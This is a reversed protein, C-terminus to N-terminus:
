KVHKWTTGQKIHRITSEGVGYIRAVSAITEKKLLIKIMRVQDPNLVSRPSVKYGRKIVVRPPFYARGKKWMDMNNEKHTGVFLHAPNVCSRNDCSHCVCLDDPVDVGSIKLATRHAYENKTIANRCRGYGNDSKSGMWNWCSLAGGSKDAKGWFHKIFEKESRARCAM